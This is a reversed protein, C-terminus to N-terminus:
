VNIIMNFYMIIKIQYPEHILVLFPDTLKNMQQKTDRSFIFYITPENKM